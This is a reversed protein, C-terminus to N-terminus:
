EVKQKIDRWSAPFIIDPIQIPHRFLEKHISSQYPKDVYRIHSHPVNAIISDDDDDDDDVQYLKVTYLYETTDAVESKQHRELVDCMKFHGGKLNTNTEDFQLAPSGDQNELEGNQLGVAHCATMVNDPMQDGSYERELMTMFPENGREFNLELAEKSWEKSSNWEKVHDDWAKQWDDGYDIFVEENAAIDRTAIVDFGLPLNSGFIEILEEASLQFLTNDYFPARSWVVKANAGKGTPLHNIFNVGMGYPYFLLSSEPHGFCYNVFLQKSVPNRRPVKLQTYQETGDGKVEIPYMDLINKHRIMFLPSPSILEGEKFSRRAFGGKEAGPISSKGPYLGDLCQGNELLWDLSKKTEPFRASFAGGEQVYQGLDQLSEPIMEMIEDIGDDDYENEDLFRKTSVQVVDNLYKYIEDAKDGTIVTEYKKFFHQMEAVANNVQEVIQADLADNDDVELGLGSMLVEMGVPILTKSKLTVGYYQSNAGRSPPVGGSDSSDFMPIRNLVATDELESNSYSTFHQNVLAGIGPIAVNIHSGGRTFPFIEFNAHITEPTWMFGTLDELIEEALNGGSHMNLDIIPIAMDPIGITKGPDIDVGAYIGLKFENTQEDDDLTSSPALFLTCQSKDAHAGHLYHSLLLLVISRQCPVM